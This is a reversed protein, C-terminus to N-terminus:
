PAALVRNLSGLQSVLEAMQARLEGVTVPDLENLASVDTLTTQHRELFERLKGVTKLLSRKRSRGGVPRRKRVEDRLKTVTWHEADAAVLLHEQDSSELALVEQLHSATLHRWAPRGGMRECLAYIAVARCLASPSLLLDGRAALKRYSLSHTGHQSWLSISGNYLEGIVLEGISYTVELTAQRYMANIRQALRELRAQDVLPVGVLPARLSATPALARSNSRDTPEEEERASSVPISPQHLAKEGIIM